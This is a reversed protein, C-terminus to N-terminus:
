AGATCQAMQLPSIHSAYYAFISFATCHFSAYQIDPCLSRGPWHQRAPHLQALWCHAEPSESSKYTGSDCSVVCETLEQGFICTAEPRPAITCAGWCYVLDDAPLSWLCRCDCCFGMLDKFNFHVQQPLLLQVQALLVRQPTAAHCRSTSGLWLCRCRLFPFRTTTSGWSAL